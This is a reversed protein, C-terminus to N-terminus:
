YMYMYLFDRIEHKTFEVNGNNSKQVDSVCDNITYKSPLFIFIIINM